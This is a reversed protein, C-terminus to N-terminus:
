LVPALCALLSHAIDSMSLITRLYKGQPSKAWSPRIMSTKRGGSHVQPSEIEPNSILPPTPESVNVPSLNRDFPPTVAPAKVANQVPSRNGVPSPQPTDDAASQVPTMHFKSMQSPMREPGEKGPSKTPFFMSSRMELQSRREHPDLDAEQDIKQIIGKM